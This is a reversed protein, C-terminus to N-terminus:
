NVKLSETANVLADIMEDGHAIHGSNPLVVYNAQPLARHLQWASEMPCVLDNRGHIITVPLERLKGSHKLLENEALFYHNKAFHVEMKVQKVDRETVHEDRFKFAAGLAVQGGWAQWAKTVRRIALEDKGWLAAGLDDLLNDSRQEAPISEVLYHFMEPYILAVGTPSLFWRMDSLRALFSGRLILSQVRKVHRQAYALALTAGWSGGFLIWNELKLHQRIREMDAILDPLTNNELEGFPLSRGCGRQDFLIIHYYAPDFFRRHDPKCGSCPGGHLFIIPVGHPNGCQEVYVSHVSGTKLFFHQFPEIPPFLTNM